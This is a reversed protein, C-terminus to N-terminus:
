RATTEVPDLHFLESREDYDEIKAVFHFSAGSKISEPINDGALHLDLINCDKFQFNPGSMNTESYDGALILFDYRTKYNEHHNFCAVNGDFAITRGAYKEAFQQVKVDGPNKLALIEAFEANNDITIIDETTEEAGASCVALLMVMCILCLLKKM